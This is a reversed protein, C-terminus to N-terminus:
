VGTELSGLKSLILKNAQNGDFISQVAAKCEGFTFPKRFFNMARVGGNPDLCKIKETEACNGTIVIIPVPSQNKAEEYKRIEQSATIGDMVPMQLDMTLFSYYGRPKSKLMELAEAGNNAIDSQINLKNFYSSLILQNTNLDDVILARSSPSQENHSCNTELLNKESAVLLVDEKKAIQAPILVVFTSGQGEKSYAHIEGGMKQIIQKTIYLGLGTGGYKRTISSDAQKFPQFLSNLAQPSIGCGSDVVEIKIWGSSEVSTAFVDESSNSSPVRSTSIDCFSKIKFERRLINQMNTTRKEANEFEFSIVDTSFKRPSSLLFSKLRSESQFNQKPKRLDETKTNSSHWTIVANVFGEKCFKTANGILNLLIQTIRHSDIEVYKPFNRAIHLEGQLKKQKIAMESTKWIKGAIERFNEAQYHLELKEANIKAVDLVNNILGLLVECSIQCTDIYQLWKESKVELRLLEINGTLSNLPNRLEHSVSAIFLERAQIANKLDVNTNELLELTSKLKDQIDMNHILTLRYSTTLNQAGLYHFLLILFWSYNFSKVSTEFKEDWFDLNQVFQKQMFFILGFTTPLYIKSLIKSEPFLFFVHHNALVLGVLTLPESETYYHCFIICIASIYSYSGILSYNKGHLTYIQGLASIIQFISKLYSAAPNVFSIIGFFIISLYNHYLIISKKLRYREKDERDLLAAELKAYHHNHLKYLAQFPFFFLRFILHFITSLLMFRLKRNTQQKKFVFDTFKTLM